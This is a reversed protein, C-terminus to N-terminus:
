AENRKFIKFFGTFLTLLSLFFSRNGNKEHRSSPTVVESEETQSSSDPSAASKRPSENRYPLETQTVSSKFLSSIGEFFGFFYENGTYGELAKEARSITCETATETKQTQMRLDEQSPTTALATRVDSMVKSFLESVAATGSPQEFDRLTHIGRRRETSSRTTPLKNNQFNSDFITHINM